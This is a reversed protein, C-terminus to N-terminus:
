VIEYERPLLFIVQSKYDSDKGRVKNSIVYFTETGYSFTQMPGPNKFNTDIMTLANMAVEGSEEESNFLSCFGSTFGPKVNFSYNGCKEQPMIQLIERM